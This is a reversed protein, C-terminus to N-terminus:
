VSKRAGFILNAHFCQLANDINQMVFATQRQCELLTPHLWQQLRETLKQERLFSEIRHPHQRKQVQPQNKEYERVIAKTQTQVLILRPQLPISKAIQDDLNSGEQM